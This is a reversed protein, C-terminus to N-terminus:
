PKLTKARLNGQSEPEGGPIRRQRVAEFFVVGVSVAVNLSDSGASMPISISRDCAERVGPRLGRGEAGAVIVIRNRLDAESWPTGGEPELALVLFGMEGLSRLRHALKPERAVPVRELAGASVKAVTPTLGVRGESGLLIGDAGAAAATRVLAGLNRPDQVRDLALLMGDRRSAAQRCIRDPDAYPLASVMAVVGQHLARRGVKRALVERPLYSVPIGAERAMKLLRGLNAGGRERAVLIKEVLRSGGKLAELIPHLGYLTEGREGTSNERVPKGGAPPCPRREPM